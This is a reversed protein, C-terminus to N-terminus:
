RRAGTLLVLGRKVEERLSKHALCSSACLPTGFRECRVTKARVERARPGRWIEAASQEKVNGISPHFWCLEVDGSPSIHYDRLGVRCPALTPKVARQCFHDPMAELAAVSTEIPAGDAKMLVLCRVVSRLEGIMSDGHIWTDENIGNRQATVPKFDVSTAGVTSTWQVLEPLVRYNLAHVTPKLRLPFRVGLRDQTERLRRIGTTIRELSGPVGRASDHIEAVSADISLDFNLPRARVVREVIEPTLVSGNTIVGWGIRHEHCFELLDVFGKKIFPEGGSFQITYGGIFDKLSLLAQQWQSISMEDQYNPLRWFDCYQCKYNCRENIMGRISSPRTINLGTRLSITDAAATRTHRMGAKALDAISISQKVPRSMTM